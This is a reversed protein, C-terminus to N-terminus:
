VAAIADNELCHGVLLVDTLGAFTKPDLGTIDQIRQFRAVLTNPHVTLSRATLQMNMNSNAYAKVSATLTGKSREDAETFDKAWAPLAKIFESQALHFMIQAASLRSFRIIRDSLNAHSLAHQAENFARPIQSIAHVNDSIGILITAPVASLKAAVSETLQKNTSTWGSMRHVGSFVITVKNDRMDILRRVNTHQFKEDIAQILRRARQPNLLETPDQTQVLCVCFALRGTLYGEDRLLTAIRGDSEDHGELLASLLQSRRDGAVDALLQLQAVYTNTFLRSITDVFEQTLDTVAVILQQTDCDDTLPTLAANRTQLSLAKQVCRYTHLTAELPFHQEALHEAYDVIFDINPSKTSDFMEFFCYTLSALHTHLSKRINPNRSITYATVQQLVDSELSETLNLQDKRSYDAVVDTFGKVQHCQKITTILSSTLESLAPQQSYKM